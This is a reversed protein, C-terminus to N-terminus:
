NKKKGFLIKERELILRAAEIEYRLYEGWYDVSRINRKLGQQLLARGGQSDNENEMMAYAAVIWFDPNEPHIRIARALM